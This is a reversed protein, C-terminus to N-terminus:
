CGAERVHRLYAHELRCKVRRDRDLAANVAHRVLPVGSTHGSACPSDRPMERSCLEPSSRRRCAGPSHYGAMQAPAAGYARYLVAPANVCAEAKRELRPEDMGVAGPVCVGIHDRKKCLSPSLASSISSPSLLCPPRSPIEPTLLSMLSRWLAASLPFSRALSATSAKTLPM